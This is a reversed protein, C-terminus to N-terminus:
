GSTRNTWSSSPVDRAHGDPPDGEGFEVSAPPDIKVLFPTDDTGSKQLVLTQGGSALRPVTFTNQKAGWRIRVRHDEGLRAATPRVRFWVPGTFAPKFHHSIDAGSPSARMVGAQEAHPRILFFAAAAALVVVAAGAVNATRRGMRAPESSPPQPDGKEVGNVRDHFTTLTGPALGCEQEWLEVIQRNPRRDGTLYRRVTRPDCSLAEALDKSSLGRERRALDLQQALEHHPRSKAPAMGM